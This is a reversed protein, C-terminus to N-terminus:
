ATLYALTQDAIRQADADTLGLRSRVGLGQLTTVVFDALDDANRDARVEGRAQAAHLSHTIGARLDEIFAEAVACAEAGVHEREVLTNTVLCGRGDADAPLRGAFLSRIAGLGEDTRLPAGITRRFRARYNELAAEFLGDKGGFARYLSHRNFGTHTLLADVSTGAYGHQWFFATAADLVAQRDYQPTRPM